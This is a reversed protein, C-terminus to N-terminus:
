RKAPKKKEAIRARLWGIPFFFQKVDFLKFSHAIQCLVVRMVRMM